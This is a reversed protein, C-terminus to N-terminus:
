FVFLQWQFATFANVQDSKLVYIHYDYSLTDMGKQLAKKLIFGNVSDTLEVKVSDFERFIQRNFFDAIEAEQEFSFWMRSKQPHYFFLTFCGLDNLCFYCNRRFRKSKRSM